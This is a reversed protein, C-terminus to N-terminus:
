KTPDTTPDTTEILDVSVTENPIRAAEIIKPWFTPKDIVMCVFQERIKRNREQINQNEM